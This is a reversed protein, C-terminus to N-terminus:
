TYLWKLTNSRRFFLHNFIVIKVRICKHIQWRQHQSFTHTFVKNLKFVISTHYCEFLNKGLTWNRNYLQQAPSNTIIKRFKL